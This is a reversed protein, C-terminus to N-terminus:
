AVAQLVMGVVVVAFALMQHKFQGAMESGLREIDAGVSDITVKMGTLAKATRWAQAVMYGAGLVQLAIGAWQLQTAVDM